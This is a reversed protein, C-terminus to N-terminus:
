IAGDVEAPVPLWRRPLAGPLVEMGDAIALSNGRGIQWELFAARVMSADPDITGM